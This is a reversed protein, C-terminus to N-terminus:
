HNIGNRITYRTATLDGEAHDAPILNGAVDYQELSYKGRFATGNDILSVTAIVEVTGAFLGNVDFVWGLHRVKFTGHGIRSLGRNTSEILHELVGVINQCTVLWGYVILAVSTPGVM